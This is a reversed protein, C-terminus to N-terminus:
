AAIFEPEPVEDLYDVGNSSLSSIVQVAEFYDAISVPESTAFQEALRDVLDNARDFHPDSKTGTLKTQLSGLTLASWLQLDNQSIASEDVLDFDKAEADVPFLHHVNNTTM